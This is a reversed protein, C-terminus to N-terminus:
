DGHNICFYKMNKCPDIDVYQQTKDFGVRHTALQIM